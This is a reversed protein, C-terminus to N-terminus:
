RQGTLTSTAAILDSAERILTASWGAARAAAVNEPSDDVLHFLPAPRAHFCAITAFFALDPKAVGLNASFHMGEVRDAFGLDDMIYRARRAEQNTALWVSHGANRSASILDLAEPVIHADNRFWYSLLTEADPANALTALATDLAPRIPMQGTVIQAWYPEFFAARLSAKSLGLDAEINESWVEGDRSRGNICVGDVDLMLYIPESTM